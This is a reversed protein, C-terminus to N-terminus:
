HEGKSRQKIARAIAALLLSAIAVIGVGTVIAITAGSPPQYSVVTIDISEEGLVQDSVKLIFEAQYVGEPKPAVTVILPASSNPALRVPKSEAGFFQLRASIAVSSNGNQLIFQAVVPTNSPWQSALKRVDSTRGNWYASSSVWSLNIESPISPAPEPVNPAPEDPKAQGILDYYSAKSYNSQNLFKSRCENCFQIRGLYLNGMICEAYQPNDFPKMHDPLGFTHGIEHEILTEDEYFVMQDSGYIPSHYDVSFAGRSNAFIFIPLQCGDYDAQFNAQSTALEITAEIAEDVDLAKGWGINRSTQFEAIFRYTWSWGTYTRLRGLALEIGVRLNSKWQPDYDSSSRYIYWVCIEM